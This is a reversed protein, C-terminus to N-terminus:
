TYALRTAYTNFPIIAFPVVCCNVFIKGSVVIIINDKILTITNSSNTSFMNFFIYFTFGTTFGTASAPSTETDLSKLCFAVGLGEEKSNGNDDEEEEVEVEM